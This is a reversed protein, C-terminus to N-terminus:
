FLEPPPEDEGPENTALVYAARVDYAIESASGSTRILCGLLPRRRHQHEVCASAVVEGYRGAVGEMLLSTAEERDDALLILDDTGALAIANTEVDSPTAALVSLLAALLADPDDM